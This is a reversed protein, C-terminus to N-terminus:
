VPAGETPPPEPPTTPEAPASEDKSFQGTTENYLDGVAPEQGGGILYATSGPPEFVQPGGHYVTLGVVKGNLVVAHTPKEEAPAAQSAPQDAVSPDSM